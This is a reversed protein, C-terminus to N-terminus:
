VYILAAGYKVLLVSLSICKKKVAGGHILNVVVLSLWFFVRVLSFSHWITVLIPVLLLSHGGLILFRFIHEDECNMSSQVRFCGNLWIRSHTIGSAAGWIYIDVGSVLENLVYVMLWFNLCTKNKRGKNEISNVIYVKQASLM